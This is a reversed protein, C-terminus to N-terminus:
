CFSVIAQMERATRDILKHICALMLTDSLRRNLSAHKRNAKKKKVIM